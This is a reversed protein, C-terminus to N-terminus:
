KSLCCLTQKGSQEITILGAKECEKIAYYAPTKTMKFEDMIAYKLKYMSM